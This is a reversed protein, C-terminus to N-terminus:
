IDTAPDNTCSDNTPRHPLPGPATAAAQTSAFNTEADPALIEEPWDVM